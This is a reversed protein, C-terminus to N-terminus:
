SNLQNSIDASNFSYKEGNHFRNCSISKDRIGNYKYKKGVNTYIYCNAVFTNQPFSFSVIQRTAEYGKLNIPFSATELFKEYYSDTDIMKQFKYKYFSPELLSLYKSGKADIFEIYCISVPKQSNNKFLFEVEYQGFDSNLYDIFEISLVDISINTRNKYWIYLWNSISLVLSILAIAVTFFNTDLQNM